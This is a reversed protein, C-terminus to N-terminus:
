GAAKFHRQGLGGPVFATVFAQSYTEAYERHKVGFSIGLCTAGDISFGLATEADYQDLVARDENVDLAYQKGAVTMEIRRIGAAQRAETIPPHIWGRNEPTSIWSAVYKWSTTYLDQLAEAVECRQAEKRRREIERELQEPSLPAKPRSGFLKELM